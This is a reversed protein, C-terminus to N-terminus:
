LHQPANLVADTVEASRLTMRRTVMWVIVALLGACVVANGAALVNLDAAFKLDDINSTGRVLGVAVLLQLAYSGVFTLWYVFILTPPKPKVRGVRDTRTWIEKLYGFPRVLSLFPIIWMFTAVATRSQTKGPSITPLNGYARAFWVLFLPGGVLLLVGSLGRLMDLRNNLSNELEVPINMGYEHVLRRHDLSLVVTYISLPVWVAFIATVITGITDVARFGLMEPTKRVRLKTAYAPQAIGYPSAPADLAFGAPEPPPYGAPAFPSQPQALPGPAGPFQGAPPIPPPLRSM